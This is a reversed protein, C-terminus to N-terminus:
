GYTALNKYFRSVRFLGIVWILIMTIFRNQGLHQYSYKYKGWNKYKLSYDMGFYTEEIRSIQSGHLVIILVALQGSMSYM